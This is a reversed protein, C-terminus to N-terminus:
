TWVAVNQLWFYAAEVDAFTDFAIRNTLTREPQSVLSLVEYLDTRARISHPLVFATALLGAAVLDDYYERSLWEIVENWGDLDHTGDSLMKTSGTLQIRKLVELCCAKKERGSHRGPWTTFICQTAADHAITLYPTSFLTQM